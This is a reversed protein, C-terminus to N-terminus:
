IFVWFYLVYQLFSSVLCSQILNILMLWQWRHVLVAAQFVVIVVVIIM